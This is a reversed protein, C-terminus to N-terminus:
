LALLVSTSKDQVLELWKKFSHLLVLEYLQYQNNILMEVFKLNDLVKVILILYVLSHKMRLDKM